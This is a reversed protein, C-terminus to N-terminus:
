GEKYIADATMAGISGSTTLVGIKKGRMVPQSSIVKVLEIMEILNQARIAGTQHFVADYIGDEGSLSGTHSLTAKQGFPTRGSKLIVVPKKPTTERLVKIFREGNKV